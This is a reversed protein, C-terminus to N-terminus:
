GPVLVTAATNGARGRPFSREKQRVRYAVRERAPCYPVTLVPSRMSATASSARPARAPQAPVQAGHERGPSADIVPDVYAVRAKRRSRRDAPEGAAGPHGTRRTMTSCCGSAPLRLRSPTRSHSSPSVPAGPPDRDRRHPGCRSSSGKRARRSWRGSRAPISDRAPAGAGRADERTALGARRRTERERNLSIDAERRAGERAGRERWPSHRRPPSTDRAQGVEM